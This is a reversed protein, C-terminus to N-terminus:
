EVSSSYDVGQNLAECVAGTLDARNLTYFHFDQVGNARLRACLERCLTVAVRQSQQPDSELPALSERVWSPISTGCRAGMREVAALSHIPLIGPTIPITVGAARAREVFRVFMDPDFFFQSIARTAGADQKRKLHEVDSNASQAHPHVEPYCGVAIDFDGRRAISTVLDVSGQYGQPHPTFESAGGAADGRLAVIRLVGTDAYSQVMEDVQAKAVGVCTVHAAVAVASQARLRSVVNLTREQTSGGAGYTVSVFQPDLKTLEEHCDWLKTMGVENATPFYEFSLSTKCPMRANVVASQTHLQAQAGQRQNPEPDPSM